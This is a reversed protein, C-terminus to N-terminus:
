HMQQSKSGLQDEPQKIDTGTGILEYTADVAERRYHTHEGQMGIYQITTEELEGHNSPFFFTLVTVNTFPAVATTLEVTGALNVPLNFTQAPTIDEVNIFDIGEHNVFCKVQSPHNDPNEGGGIILLRRVHVPSTFRAVIIIQSDADSILMPESSLKLVNPKFIGIADERNTVNLATTATDLMSYLNWNDEPYEPDHSHGAGYMGPGHPSM